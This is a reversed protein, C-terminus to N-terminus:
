IVKGGDVLMGDRIHVIRNAYAAVDNDHTVIIITKGDKNLKALIEM